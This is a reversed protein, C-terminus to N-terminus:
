NNKIATTIASQYYFRKKNNKKPLQLKYFIPFESQFYESNKDDLLMDISKSDFSLMSIM